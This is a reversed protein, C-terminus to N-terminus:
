PAVFLKVEDDYLLMYDPGDDEDEKVAAADVVEVDSDAGDDRDGTADGAAAVRANVDARYVAAVDVGETHARMVLLQNEGADDSLNARMSTWLRGAASFERESEASSAPVALICRAWFALIPLKHVHAPWWMLADLVENGHVSEALEENYKLLEHNLETSVDSAALNSSIGKPVSSAGANLNTRRKQLDNIYLAGQWFDVYESSGPAGRLMTIATRPNLVEAALILKGRPAVAVVV